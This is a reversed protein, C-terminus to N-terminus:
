SRSGGIIIKEIKVMPMGIGVKVSQGEKGCAGTGKDFELKNGIMSLRQMIEIGSGILTAGKISNKIEGKEIVYGEDVSFTFKGTAPNVQGGLFNVAYIGHEVSDLIEQSTNQGPLLYTNTMRPIPNCNYSMRRGNGTSKKGMLMANTKDYMYGKLVGNEILINKQSPIGESDVNFSGTGNNVTGDDVVTCVDSAVKEGLKGAFVSAKKRIADAELGHGVAEHILVAPWGSALIVPMEGAEIPLSSLNLLAVRVADRAIALYRKELGQEQSLKSIGRVYDMPIVPVLEKFFNLDTGSGSASHGNERNGKDEVIVTCSLLVRPVIDAAINGDTSAVLFEKDSCSINAIVQVVRPDLSRAFANMENLIYVKEDRSLSHIPHYIDSKVLPYKKSYDIKAVGDGPVNTVSRAARVTQHLARENIEDSYALATKEGSVGRVGFGQDISFVGRKVSGDDLTWNERVNKQFYIDGFDIKTSNLRGLMKEVYSIDINNSKLLHDEVKSILEDSNEYRM